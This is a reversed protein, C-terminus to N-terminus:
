KYVEHSGIATLVAEKPTIYTFVIRIKYNVSFSHRHKHASKLKHVKLSQHNTSNKFLEIKEFTEEQLDFELRRFMRRFQPTVSVILM